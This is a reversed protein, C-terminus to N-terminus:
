FWQVPDTSGTGDSRLCRDTEWRRRKRVGGATGVIVSSDEKLVWVPTDSGVMLRQRCGEVGVPEEGKYFPRM